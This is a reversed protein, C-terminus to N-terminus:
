PTVLKGPYTNDTIQYVWVPAAVRGGTRDFAISGSLGQYQITTLATAVQARGPFDKDALSQAIAELLIHTADYALLARPGPPFRALKEYAAVFPAAEHIQRPDPSPSVFIFGTAADQAVQLTQPSGTEVQGLVPVTSNAQRLAVLFEGAAVGDTNLRLAQTGDSISDFTSLTLPTIQEFGLAQETMELYNETETLNAAVSVVGPELNTEAAISWPIVVALGAKQYVPLAAKTAAPSLHGVVGVVASDALLARAQAEAELPDDFDNLAVLEVQYGGVGGALNQEQLALKVGFLAEYGLPRHLGEFPAVLGIKLTAPAGGTKIGSCATLSLAM